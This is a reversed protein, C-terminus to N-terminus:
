RTARMRRQSATLGAFTTKTKDVADSVQTSVDPGGVFSVGPTPSPSMVQSRDIVVSRQEAANLGPNPGHMFVSVVASVGKGTLVSQVITQAKLARACSLNENFTPDGETSAYGYIEIIEGNAITDAFLELRTQEAPNIFDDCNVTFHFREGVIDGSVPTCGVPAGIAAPGCARQLGTSAQSVMLPSNVQRNGSNVADAIENAEREYVDNPAGVTLNGQFAINGRQQQVVHTLEHAMLQAGTRITPM